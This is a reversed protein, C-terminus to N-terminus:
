PMTRGSTGPRGLGLAEAPEAERRGEALDGPQEVGLLALFVRQDRLELLDPVAAPDPHEHGPQLHRGVQCLRGDLRVSQTRGPGVPPHGEDGPGGGDAGVIEGGLVAPVEGGIGLHLVANEITSDSPRPFM